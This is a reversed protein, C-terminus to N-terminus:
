DVRAGAVSDALATATPLLLIIVLLYKKLLTLSTM